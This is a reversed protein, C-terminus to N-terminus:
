GQWLDLAQDRSPLESGLILRLAYMYKSNKIEGQDQKLEDTKEKKRGEEREEKRDRIRDQKREGM